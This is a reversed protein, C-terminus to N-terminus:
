GEKATQAGVKRLVLLWYLQHEEEHPEWHWGGRGWAQTSHVTGRLAGAQAPRREREGCAQSRQPSCGRNAGGSMVGMHGRPSTVGSWVRVSLELVGVNGATQMGM